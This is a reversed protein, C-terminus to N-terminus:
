FRYSLGAGVLWPDLDVDAKIAGNNLSADVNLWIKKVDLNLGWNDNIWYDFGAQAAPGFSSDLNLDSFGDAANEGYFLSYNLGAGIYPSFKEEPMFHYQLTVTPPLIWTEGLSAGSSHSLNHHATGAIVETAIHPTLFYTLDVEPTISNSVKVDGGINVRSSESPIVGLARLRVQFREKALYGTYNDASAPLTIGIALLSVSWLLINKMHMEMKSFLHM